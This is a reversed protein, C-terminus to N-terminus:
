IQECHTALYLLALAPSGLIAIWKANEVVVPACVLGGVIDQSTKDALQRSTTPHNAARTSASAVASLRIGAAAFLLMAMLTLGMLKSLM